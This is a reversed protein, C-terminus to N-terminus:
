PIRSHFDLKGRKGARSIAPYEISIKMRLMPTVGPSSVSETTSSLTAIYRVPKGSLDRLGKDYQAKTLKGVPKGEESFALAWVDGSPPFIQGVETSTFYVPRKARSALVEDLCVPVMWTSRTEAESAMTSKGAEAIAGFVMPIAVALVGIAIVAEVLTAGSSRRSNSAATKM